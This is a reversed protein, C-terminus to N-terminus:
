NKIKALNHAIALLGTEMEVKNTWQAFIQRLVDQLRESRFRNISLELRTINM